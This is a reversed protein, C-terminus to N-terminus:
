AIKITKSRDCSDGHGLQKFRSPHMIAGCGCILKKPPNKQKGRPGSPNKQKGYAGRLIGIRAVSMAKKHTNSKPKRMKAKTEESRPGNSIGMKAKSINSSYTKKESTTMNAHRKLMAETLKPNKGINGGGQGTEPKKNAWIKNGFDDMANVINWLKSYYRGVKSLLSYETTTLLIETKINNGYSKIHKTWEKGSGEYRLPNKTTQGLYKLGTEKHTKVYLSYTKM